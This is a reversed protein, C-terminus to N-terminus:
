PDCIVEINGCGCTIDFMGYMGTWSSGCALSNDLLPDDNGCNPCTVSFDDRELDGCKECEAMPPNEYTDLNAGGGCRKCAIAFPRDLKIKDNV